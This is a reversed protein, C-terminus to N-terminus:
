NSFRTGCTTPPTWLTQPRNSGANNFLIDVKGMRQLVERALQDVDARDTMDAVVYEVRVPLSTASRRGAAQLEDEHRACILVDAGAEAFGRGRGQRHGQQRRHGTGHSGDSRVPVDM